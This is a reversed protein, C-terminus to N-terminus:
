REKVSLVVQSPRMADHFVTNHAVQGRVERAFPGGTNLNPDFKPFDSSTVQVRIRHGAKFTQATASMDVEFRYIRGPTMLEAREVSNRYRARLIGDCVPISRGDPYVDCLRVVWDTDPASSLAFLVARVPGVVTLDEALEDSTYTLVRPEIPRLDMPGKQFEREVPEDPDYAYSDPREAATPKEFTLRGNNLSADSRGEGERLYVPRAAADPPPWHEMDLWRNDGMLFVRVPPGDMAGNDLGKLWYDYWRLREEHIDYVAKPGYDVEGVQRQSTNGPGHIWPGVVLRQNARTHATKGHKRIGSYCRLVSDTFLDYWGGLHLMPTDVEHFRTSPNIPWYFPGDEPHELVEFYWDALGEIPPMDNLPRHRFWQDLEEVAKALRERERERGPPATEHNLFRLSQSFAWYRLFLCHAGYRYCWDAYFDAPGERVYMAKLHPPRTPALLYQTFGSFSGDLTGVNGDSWPQAAAWEITDYGDRNAGWADDRGPWHDGQSAYCGRNNQGVVVYGRPVYYDANAQTRAPLEYAVREVLVPFRGEAKPRWVYGNLVSGDRMPMSVNPETVIEYKPESAGSQKM